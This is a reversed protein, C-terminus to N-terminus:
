LVDREEASNIVGRFSERPDFLERVRGFKLIRM